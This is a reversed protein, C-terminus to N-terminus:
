WAKYNESNVRYATGPVYMDNPTLNSEKGEAQAKENASQILKRLERFAVSTRVINQVNEQPPQKSLYEIVAQQIYFYSRLQTKKFEINSGDEMLFLSDGEQYGLTLKAMIEPVFIRIESALNKDGVMEELENTMALYKEQSDVSVLKDLVFQAGEVVTQKTFPCEDDAQNVFVACQKECIFTNEADWSKVYDVFFKSLELCVSGNIRVEIIERDKHKALYIRVWYYKKSGLYKPMENLIFNILMVPQGKEAAGIRVISQAFMEFEYHQRLYRVPVKLPNKKQMSQDLPHWIGGYFIDVAMKAAEEFTNGQADVPDMLPEDFDDHNIIFMAQLLKVDDKEEIRGIRVDITFGRPMIICGDYLNGKEMKKDLVSLVLEKYNAKEASEVTETKKEEVQNKKKFLAVKIM